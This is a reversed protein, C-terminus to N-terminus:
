ILGVGLSLLEIWRTLFAILLSSISRFLCHSVEFSETLRLTSLCHTKVDPIRDQKTASSFAISLSKFARCRSFNLDRKRLELVLHRVSEDRGAWYELCPHAPTAVTLPLCRPRKAFVWASEGWLSPRRTIGWIKLVSCDAECEALRACQIGHQVYGQAMKSASWNLWPWGWHFFCRPSTGRRLSLEESKSRQTRQSPKLSIPSCPPLRPQHDVAKALSFLDHISHHYRKREVAWRSSLELKLYASPPLLVPPAHVAERSTCAAPQSRRQTLSEGQKIGVMSQCLRKQCSIKSSYVTTADAM